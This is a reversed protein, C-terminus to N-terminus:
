KLLENLINAESDWTLILDYKEKYTNILEDEKENLFWIKILNEYNFWDIMHPDWLSDWLLIVNTRKEIERHIEPFDKLVTEDKNFVHILENERWIAKWNNDWIFKNSIIKVNNSLLWESELYMEISDTWLWSASIIILPINNKSLFQLYEKIWDRLKLVWSKVVKEIDYKHLNYSALLDLHASWWKTMEIKKEQMSINPDIEIPHYKDFLDYAKKSYDEWLIWESRLVSIISTTRKGNVFRKTLTNDFDALVHLKDYWDQKINSLTKNFSEENSYIKNNM